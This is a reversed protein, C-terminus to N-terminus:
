SAYHGREIVKVLLLRRGGHIHVDLLRRRRKSHDGVGGVLLRHLILLRPRTGLRGAGAHLRGLVGDDRLTPYRVRGRMLCVETSRLSFLVAHLLLCVLMHLFLRKLLDGHGKVTPEELRWLGLENHWQIGGHRRCCILCRVLLAAAVCFHIGEGLLLVRELGIFLM